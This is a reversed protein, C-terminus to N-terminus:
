ESKAKLTYEVLTEWVKGRLDLVPKNSGIYGNALLSFALTRDELTKLYGSITSVGSMGGSKARVLEHKKGDVNVKYGPLARYFEEFHKHESMFALLRVSSDASILNYRSLGSGDVLRFSGDDLKVTSVLWNNIAKAGDSWTPTQSGTAIAIEHLLVEGVANESKHNFHKLTTALDVGSHVLVTQKSKPTFPKSPEGFKVRLDKLMQQFVAGVWPGPDHMTKREEVPEAIPGTGIVQLDHTFPERTIQYRGTASDESNRHIRPYDSDPILFTTVEDGNPELHVRLVNFDVMLPTVSMNYYDPDDDWMWGPGKLPSAYRSNDVIIQGKVQKLDLKEVLKKAMTALEQNTLMANGGGVLTIDGDLTGNSCSGSVEIQTPFSKQPGFTDLACASTYIKLNSAPTLLRDGGRDYLVKGTELDVIKLTVTTRQATPHQNLLTDLTERLDSPENASALEPIRCCSTALFILLSYLFRCHTASM